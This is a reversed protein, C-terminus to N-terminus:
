GGDLLSGDQEGVEGAQPGLGKEPDAADEGDLEREFLADSGDNKRENALADSTGEQAEERHPRIQGM